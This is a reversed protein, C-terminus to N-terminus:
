PAYGGRRMKLLYFLNIMFAYQVLNFDCGPIVGAVIIEPSHQIAASCFLFADRSVDM